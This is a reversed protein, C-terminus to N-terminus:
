AEHKEGRYEENTAAARTEENTPRVSPFEKQRVM